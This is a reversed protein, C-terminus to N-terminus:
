TLGEVSSWQVTSTNQAPLAGGNGVLDHCGNGPLAPATPVGNAQPQPLDTNSAEAAPPTNDPIVIAQAPSAAVM